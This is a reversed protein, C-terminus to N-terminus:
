KLTQLLDPQYGNWHQGSPTVVVPVSNYGLSKVYNLNEEDAISKEVFNIENGNLFRKVAKCPQCGSNTYVEVM